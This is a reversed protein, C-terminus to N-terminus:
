EWVHHDGFVVLFLKHEFWISKVHNIIRLITKPSTDDQFFSLLLVALPVFCDPPIFVFLCLLFVSIMLVEDSKVSSVSLCTPTILSLNEDCSMLHWVLATDVTATPGCVDSLFGGFSMFPPPPNEGSSVLLAELAESGTLQLWLCIERHIAQLLCKFCVGSETAFWGCMIVWPM